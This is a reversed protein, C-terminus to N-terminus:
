LGLLFQMTDVGDAYDTLSPSQAQGFPVGWKGVICQVSENKRLGATLKEADDYYGYFLCSIPSFLGENELLLISNNTMYFVKNLLALSLQYDFNNKYKNHEEFHQYRELAKLLPVFDYGEPVYIKTVNRCGLGFYLQIDDALRFLEEATETGDLIAVSTRNRRIISPYRGFYYDFYRASNSSGTAIYADCGKLTEGFRILSAVGPDLSTMINVVEKILVEDKSSLKITQRHGSIFISLLDHFGVMPINGAMVLGVQRPSINDDLHYHAAWNELLQPQLFQRCVSATALSIFEPTFWNNQQYAKEGALDWNDKGPQLQKGTEALVEIRKKLNM